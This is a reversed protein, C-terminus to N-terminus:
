SSGILNHVQASPYLDSEHQFSPSYNFRKHTILTSCVKSSFLFPVKAVTCETQAQGDEAFSQAVIHTKSIMIASFPFPQASSYAKLRNTAFNCPKQLVTYQVTNRTRAMGVYLTQRSESIRDVLQLDNSCLHTELQSSTCIKCYWKRNQHVRTAIQVNSM